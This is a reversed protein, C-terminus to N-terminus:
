DCLVIQAVRQSAVTLFLLGQMGSELYPCQRRTSWAARFGFGVFHGQLLWKIEDATMVQFTSRLYLVDDVKM